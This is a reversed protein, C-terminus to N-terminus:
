RGLLKKLFNRRPPIASETQSQAPRVLQPSPAAELDKGLTPLVEPLGQPREQATQELPAEQTPAASAEMTFPKEKPTSVERQKKRLTALGEEKLIDLVSM